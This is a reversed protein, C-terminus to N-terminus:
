PLNKRPRTRANPGKGNALLTHFGIERPRKPDPETRQMLERIADFVGKFQADYKQELAALKRALGENSELMRRLQVFTRMIAINVQIARPSSLVGSLMAVGQETFAFAAKSHRFDDARLDALRRIEERSLEFLFDAPFRERNRRVAQNLVRTEVGYLMALERDLMVKEGRVMFIARTIQEVPLAPSAAALSAQRPNM